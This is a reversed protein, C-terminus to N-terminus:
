QGKIAEMFVEELTHRLPVLHRIQVRLDGAAQLLVRGTQGEALHIKLTGDEGEQLRCGRHELERCFLARDGKVRCEFVEGAGRKLEAIEGSAVRRGQHIVLADRCVWEVDPLLHSSLIINIGKSVSIDRVLDLM